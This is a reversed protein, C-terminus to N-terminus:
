PLYQELGPSSEDSHGHTVLIHKIDTMEQGLSREAEAITVTSGPVGADILVLGDSDSDLLFANVGALGIQYPNPNIRQISM